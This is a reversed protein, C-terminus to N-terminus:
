TTPFARQKNIQFSAHESDVELGERAGVGNDLVLLFVFSGVTARDRCVRLDRNLLDRVRHPIFWGLLVSGGRASAAVTVRKIHDIFRVPDVGRVLRPEPLVVPRRGDEIRGMARNVLDAAM